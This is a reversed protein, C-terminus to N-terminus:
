KKPRYDRPVTVPWDDRFFEDILQEIMGPVPQLLDTMGPMCMLQYKMGTVTMKLDNIGPLTM